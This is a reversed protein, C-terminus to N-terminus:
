VKRHVTLIAEAGEFQILSGLTALSDTFINKARNIHQFTITLDQWLQNILTKYPLFTIEKMAMDGNTSQIVLSSDRYVAVRQSGDGMIHSGLFQLKFARDINTGNPSQLVIGAGGVEVTTAGDFFLSKEVEETLAVTPLEKLIEENVKLNDMTPFTALLDM